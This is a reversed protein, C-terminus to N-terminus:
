ESCHKTNQLEEQEEMLKVVRQPNHSEGNSWELDQWEVGTIELWEREEAEYSWVCRGAMTNKSKRDTQEGKTDM